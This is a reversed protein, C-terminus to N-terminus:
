TEAESVILLSKLRISQVGESTFLCGFSMLGEFIGLYISQDRSKEETWNLSIMRSLAGQMYLIQLELLCLLTFLTSLSGKAIKTKRRCVVIPSHQQTVNVISTSFLSHQDYPTTKLSNGREIESM